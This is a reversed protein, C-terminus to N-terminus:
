EKEFFFFLLFFSSFVTEHINITKKTCSGVCIQISTKNKNRFLFSFADTQHHDCKGLAFQYTIKWIAYALNNKLILSLDKPTFVHIWVM